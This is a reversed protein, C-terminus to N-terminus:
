PFTYIKLHIKDVDMVFTKEFLSIWRKFYFELKFTRQFHSCGVASFHEGSVLTTEM